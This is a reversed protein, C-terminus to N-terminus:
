IDNPYSVSRDDSIEESPVFEEMTAKSILGEAPKNEEAASTTRDPDDADTTVTAQPEAEGDSEATATAAEDESEQDQSASASEAAAADAETVTTEAQSDARQQAVVLGAFLSVALLVLILNKRAQTM